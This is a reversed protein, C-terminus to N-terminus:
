QEGPFQRLSAERAAGRVLLDGDGDLAFLVDEAELGGIDGLADAIALRVDVSEDTRAASLAPIAEPSRLAGLAAAARARVWPDPDSRLREELEPIAQPTELQGLRLAAYERVWAREARLDKVLRAVDDERMIRGLESREALNSCGACVLLCLALGALATRQLRM